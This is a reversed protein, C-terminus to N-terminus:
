LPFLSDYCKRKGTYKDALAQLQEKVIQDKREEMREALEVRDRDKLSLLSTPGSAACLVVGYLGLRADVLQLFELYPRKKAVCEGSALISFADDVRAEEQQKLGKRRGIIESLRVLMVVTEDVSLRKRPM